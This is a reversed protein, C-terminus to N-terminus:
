SNMFLTLQKDKKEQEKNEKKDILDKLEKFSYAWPRIEYDEPMPNLQIRVALSLLRELSDPPRRAFYARWGGYERSSM